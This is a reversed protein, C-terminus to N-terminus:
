FSCPRMPVKCECRCKMYRNNNDDNRKDNHHHNNNEKEDDGNNNININNHHRNHYRADHYIDQATFTSHLALHFEVQGRAVALSDTAYCQDM